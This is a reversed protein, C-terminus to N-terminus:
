FSFLARVGNGPATADTDHKAAEASSLARRPRLGLASQLSTFPLDPQTRGARCAGATELEWANFGLPDPPCRGGPKSCQPSSFKLQDFTQRGRQNAMQQGVMSLSFEGGGLRGLFQPQRPRAEVSEVALEKAGAGLTLGVSPRRANRTAIM